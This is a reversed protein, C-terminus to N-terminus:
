GQRATYLGVRNGAPDRFVAWWGIGPIETRPLVVSGGHAEVAQLSADIDETGIYVLPEGIKYELHGSGDGATVFGGGPGGPAAFMTYEFNPDTHVQWGFVTAYFSGSAKPDSAPFDIHVVPHSDM